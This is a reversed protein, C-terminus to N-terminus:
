IEGQFMRVNTKWYQVWHFRPIQEQKLTYKEHPKIHRVDSPGKFKYAGEQIDQLRHNFHATSM